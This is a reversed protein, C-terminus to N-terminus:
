VEAGELRLAAEKADTKIKDLKDLKENIVVLDDQVFLQGPEKKIGWLEKRRKVWKRLTSISVARGTRNKIDKVAQPFNCSLLYIEVARAIFEEEYKKSM